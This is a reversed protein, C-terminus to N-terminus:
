CDTTAQEARWAKTRNAELTISSGRQSPHFGSMPLKTAKGKQVKEDKLVRHPDPHKWSIGATSGCLDFLPYLSSGMPIKMKHVAVRKRNVVVQLEGDGTIVIKIVDGVVLSTPNFESLGWSM